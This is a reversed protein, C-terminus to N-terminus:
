KASRTSDPRGYHQDLDLNVLLVNVRAEGLFGLSRGEVHPALIAEVEAPSVGRATAVRPIQWRAAAPSLHPDLGSGSTTVLEIPVPGPAQPNEHSLRQVDAAVRDRLAKSTPGLNSGGSSTADYGDNGAASPRPQFYGSQKFPQAILTSGIVRGDVAVLSGNAPRPFLAQAAGTVALPYVLGTLILTALTMKLAVILERKM